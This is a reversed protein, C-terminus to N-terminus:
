CTYYYQMLEVSVDANGGPVVEFPASLGAYQYPDYGPEGEWWRNFLEVVLRYRTGPMVGELTITGNGGFPEEVPFEEYPRGNFPIAPLTPLISYYIRYGSVPDDYDTDSISVFGDLYLGVRFLYGSYDVAPLEKTNIQLAIGGGDESAPDIYCGALLAALVIAAFILSFKTKM